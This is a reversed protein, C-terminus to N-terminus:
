LDAPFIEIPSKFTHVECDEKSGDECVLCAFDIPEGIATMPYHWVGPRYSIGQGNTAEFCSLTNLDPEDGGLCVIVLFRAKNTMPLFVQTSYQHKELLKMQLPAEALPSCSFVCLNLRATESRLNVVEALHDFRKATRMNAYRFPLSDDASILSGYPAYAERTIPVAQIASKESM